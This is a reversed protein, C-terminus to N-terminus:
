YEDQRYYRHFPIFLKEMFESSMGLGHDQIEIKLDQNPLIESKLIVHAREDSKLYKLGNGILNSFVQKLKIRDAMIRESKIYSEIKAKSQDIDYQLDALVEQVLDNLDFESLNLAQANVQSYNLLDTILAFLRSTGNEIFSIYLLYRDDLVDLNVHNQM